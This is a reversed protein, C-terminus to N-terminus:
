AIVQISIGKLLEKLEPPLEITNETNERKVVSAGFDALSLGLDKIKLRELNDKLVQLARASPRQRVGPNKSSGSGLLLLHFLRQGRHIPIYACEGEQGTLAGSRLFSSIAGQFRWDLLGAVGQLPRENVHFTAIMGSLTGDSNQTTFLAEDVSM